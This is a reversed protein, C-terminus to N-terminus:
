NKFEIRILFSGDENANDQKYDLLSTSNVWVNKKIQKIWDNLDASRNCKGTINITKNEFYFGEDNESNQKKKVPCVNADLWQISEPLSAALEDMYFSTRSNELLGNQELFQKKNDFETKLTEYHQLASQNLTFLTNIEQSKGWYYNFTFYNILLIVFSILLVSWGVLEFKRKQQHESKVVNIISSNIVGGSNEVFYSVAAAFPLLLKSTIHEGGIVIRDDTNSADVISVDTIRADKLQLQYKDFHLQNNAVMKEDMLLIVNNVVFPGLICEGINVVNLKKLMDMVENIATTRIISIFEQTNGLLTRQIIFEEMNANPLVKNLISTLIDTESVTIKRHIIGKGNLLLVIPNTLDIIKTLEEPNAIAEAQKELILASKNKKLVVVNMEYGGDPSLVIELGTAIKSKLINEIGLKEFM